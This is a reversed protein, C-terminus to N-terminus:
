VMAAFMPPNTEYIVLNLIYRSTHSYWRFWRATFQLLFDSNESCLERWIHQKGKLSLYCFQSVKQNNLSVELIVRYEIQILIRITYM